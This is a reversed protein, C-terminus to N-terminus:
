SIKDLLLPEGTIKESKQSKIFYYIEGYKNLMLLGSSGISIDIVNEVGNILTPVVSYNEKIGSQQHVMNGFSYIQGNETLILSNFHGASVHSVRQNNFYNAPVLTPVDQDKNNELGLEGCHGTGFSYVDGQASLVLSHGSGASVQVIPSENIYNIHVLTPVNECSDDNDGIGLQRHDNLGFSYIKGNKTLLLSFHRGASIQIINNIKSCLTPITRDKDDGLGLEGFLNSGFSYIEGNKTLLLSHVTGASIQAINNLDSILTPITINKTHGLGLQGSENRGFSYVQGDETLALTHGDSTSIQKINKLNPGLLHINTNFLNDIGKGFGYINGNKIYLGHNGSTSVDIRGKNKSLFVLEKRNYQSLKLRTRERLKNRLIQTIEEKQYLKNFKVSILCILLLEHCELNQLIVYLIDEPLTEFISM